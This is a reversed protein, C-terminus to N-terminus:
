VATASRTSLIHKTFVVEVIAYAGESATTTITNDDIQKKRLIRLDDGTGIDSGDLEFTSKGTTTNANAVVFDAINGFDNLVIGNDDVQVEYIIDPSDSVNVYGTDTAGLTVRGHNERDAEISTIVGLILGDDAARVVTPIGNTDASGALVVPDGIGLVTGPSSVYYRNTQGNYEAGSIHKVPRFGFAADVNAM